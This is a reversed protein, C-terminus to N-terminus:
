VGFFGKNKRREQQDLQKNAIEITKMAMNLLARPDGRHDILGNEASTVRSTPGARAKDLERELLQVQLDHVLEQTKDDLFFTSSDAGTEEDDGGSSYCSSENEEYNNNRMQESRRSSGNVSQKRDEGANTEMRNVIYGKQNVVRRRKRQKKTKGKVGELNHRANELDKEGAKRKQDLRKKRTEIFAILLAVVSAIGHVM